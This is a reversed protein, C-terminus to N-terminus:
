SAARIREAIAKLVEDDARESDHSSLYGPYEKFFKSESSARRMWESGKTGHMPVLKAHLHDVGFGEFILGTRGVDPFATDINKAVQKATRVLATVVEDEVDAFYSDQHDKPIVVSFGETNPFISLFAMHQEDEWIIHAPAAGSVIDCFICGDKKM